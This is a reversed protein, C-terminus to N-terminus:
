RVVDTFLASIDILLGPFLQEPAFDSGRKYITRMGFTERRFQVLLINQVDVVWLEEVKAPQGMYNQWILLTEAHSNRAWTVLIALDPLGYFPRLGDTQPTLREDRIFSVDPQLVLRSKDERESIYTMESGFVQGGYVGRLAWLVNDKAIQNTPRRRKMAAMM